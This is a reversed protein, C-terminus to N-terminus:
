SAAAAPRTRSCKCKRGTRLPDLDYKLGPDKPDGPTGGIVLQALTETVKKNKDLTEMVLFKCPAFRNNMQMEADITLPGRWAIFDGHKTFGTWLRNTPQPIGFRRCSVQQM